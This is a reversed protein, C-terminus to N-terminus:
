KIKKAKLYRRAAAVGETTARFPQGVIVGLTRAARRNLSTDGRVWRAVLRLGSQDNMRGLAEAARLVVAEDNHKLLQRLPEVAQSAHLRGLAEAAEAQVNANADELLEILALTGEHGVIQMLVPIAARRVVHDSSMSLSVVKSIRDRSVLRSAGAAALAALARERQGLPAKAPTGGADDIGRGPSDSAPVDAPLGERVARTLTEDDVPGFKMGTLYWGEKVRRSYVVMGTLRKANEASLTVEVLLPANRAFHHPAVFGVGGLSIDRATATTKLMGAGDPSLHYVEFEANFKRRTRDRKEAWRAGQALALADVEQLLESVERAQDTAASSACTEAM